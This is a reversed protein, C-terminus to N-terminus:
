GAARKELRTMMDAQVAQNIHSILRFL